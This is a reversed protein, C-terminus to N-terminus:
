LRQASLVPDHALLWPRNSQRVPFLDNPDVAGREVAERGRDVGAVGGQLEALHPADLRTRRALDLWL